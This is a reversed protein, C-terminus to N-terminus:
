PTNPANKQDAIGQLIAYIIISEELTLQECLIDEDREGAFISRIAAIINQWVEAFNEMEVELQKKEEANNVAAVVM